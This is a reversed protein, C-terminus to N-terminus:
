RFSTLRTPLRSGGRNAVAPHEARVGRGPKCPPHNSSETAQSGTQPTAPKSSGDPQSGIQPTPSKSIEAALYKRVTERDVQLERAIRRKSWGQQYLGIISQQRNVKLQNMAGTQEWTPFEWSM